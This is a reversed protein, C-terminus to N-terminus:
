GPIRVLISSRFTLKISQLSKPNPILIDFMGLQLTLLRSFPVSTQLYRQEGALDEVTVDSYMRAEQGCSVRAGAM